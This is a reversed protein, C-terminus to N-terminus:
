ARRRGGSVARRAVVGAWAPRAHTLFEARRSFEASFGYRPSCQAEESVVCDEEREDTCADGDGPADPQGDPQEPLRGPVLPHALDGAGHLLAGRRIEPPLVLRDRDDGDDREQEEAEVVLEAPAGRDSEQDAGDERAGGAEDAHVDGHARVHPRRLGRAVADLRREVDGEPCARDRPEEDDPQPEEADGAVVPHEGVPEFWEDSEAILSRTPRAKPPERIETKARRPPPM